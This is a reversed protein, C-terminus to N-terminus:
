NNNSNTLYYFLSSLCSKVGAGYHFRSRAKRSREPVQAVRLLFTPQM